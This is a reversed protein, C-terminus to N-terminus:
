FCHELSNRQWCSEVFFVFGFLVKRLCFAFHPKCFTKFLPKFLWNKLCQQIWELQLTSLVCSFILLSFKKQWMHFKFISNFAIGERICSYQMWSFPTSLFWGFEVLIFHGSLCTQLYNFSYVFTSFLSPNPLPLPLSSILCKFHQTHGFWFVWLSFSSTRWFFISEMRWCCCLISLRIISSRKTPLVSDECLRWSTNLQGPCDSRHTRTELISCVM